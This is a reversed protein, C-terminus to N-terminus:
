YWSFLFLPGCGLTYMPGDYWDESYGWYWGRPKVIGIHLNWESRKAQNWWSFCLRGYAKGFFHFSFSNGNAFEKELRM